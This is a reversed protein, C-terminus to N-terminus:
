RGYRGPGLLERWLTPDRRVAALADIVEPDTMIREVLQKGEAADHFRQVMRAAFLGGWWNHIRICYEAAEAWTDASYNPRPTRFESTEMWSTRFTMPDCSGLKWDGGVRRRARNPADLLWLVGWVIPFAVWAGCCIWLLAWGQPDKTAYIALAAVAALPFAWIALVLSVRRIWALFLTDPSWRIPIWEYSRTFLGSPKYRFVHAVSMPFLPFGLVCFFFVADFNTYKQDTYVWRVHGRAGCTSVWFLGEM